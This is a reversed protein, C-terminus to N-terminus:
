STPMEASQLHSSIPALLAQDGRYRVQPHRPSKGYKCRVEGNSLCSVRETSASYATSEASAKVSGGVRVADDLRGERIARSAPTVTLRIRSGSLTRLSYLQTPPLIAIAAMKFRVPLPTRAVVRVLHSRDRSYMEGILDRM